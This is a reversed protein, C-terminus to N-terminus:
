NEREPVQEECNDQERIKKIRMYLPTEQLHFIRFIPKVIFGAPSMSGRGPSGFFVTRKKPFIERLVFAPSRVPITGSPEPVISREPNRLTLFPQRVSGRVLKRSIGTRPINQRLAPMHPPACMEPMKGASERAPAADEALAPFVPQEM